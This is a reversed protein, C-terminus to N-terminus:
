LCDDLLPHLIHFRKRGVSHHRDLLKLNVWYMCDTINCVAHIHHVDLLEVPLMRYTTLIELGKLGRSM